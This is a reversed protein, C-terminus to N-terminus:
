PRPRALTDSRLMLSDVKLHYREWERQATAASSRLVDVSTGLQRLVLEEQGFYTAKPNDHLLGRDVDHRLATLQKRSLALENHMEEHHKLVRGLSRSMARHYNGLIMAQDPDLTDAFRQEIWTRQSRFTSDMRRYVAIDIGNVIADLSDTTRLLSDITAVMRPDGHRCGQGSLGLLVLTPFLIATAIRM